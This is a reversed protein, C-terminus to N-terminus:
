FKDLRKRRVLQMKRAKHKEAPEEEAEEHSAGLVDLDM